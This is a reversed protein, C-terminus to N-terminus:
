IYDLTRQQVLEMAASMLYCNKNTNGANDLFIHIRRVWSPVSEKIHHMLYSITYHTNKPGVKEDFVYIHAKEDNHDVIGFLHNSLKQLYYASGPQPSSGWHPVLKSM